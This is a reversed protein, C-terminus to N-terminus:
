EAAIELAARTQTLLARLAAPKLPKNLLVLDYEAAKDRVEPSRDATILVAPIASRFRSRLRRVVAIGNDNDLHFDAIIMDPKRPAAKILRRASDYDSAILVKCGWGELLIRLGDLITPENDIALVSLGALPPAQLVMPEAPTVAYIGVSVVPIDVSFVSGRRGSAGVSLPHGLARAIRDVISLGLGLGRAAKAGEDLRQFEKFIATRKGEPVGIGTDRVEIRVQDARRRCGVLVRGEPTYKIANSILNQLIRRLLRRDSRVSLRSPVFTLTLNKQRALPAFEVALQGFMEDIRFTSLEPKLKGSDLRSIELLATLIEEVSDLSAGVNRALSGLESGESRENLSTAYLRAANLPQLIDHSAAALFRTKSLNAQEAEAKARGLEENVRTLENTRQLVRRELTENAQNLAAEAKVAVTIDTYTTVIGGDPLHNSRVELWRSPAHLRLREPETRTVFAQVRRAISDSSMDAGYTGRKANYGVIDDLGVGFRVMDSPLDFLDKFAQNWCVLRLDSDFVTVGQETHDLAHQLLTRSYQIAASADDLLKLAAETSVNRRRLMLSLVLRSSAAGIVSALLHEAFRITHADAELEPMPEIGQRTAFENFERTTREEGLYRAVTTKLETMTVASRWLRFSTGTLGPDTGIFVNAQLREVPTAARTLSLGIYSLINLSLSIIVGSVLASLDGIVLSAPRLWDIGFLGSRMWNALAGEQGALSPLFLLVFWCVMGVVPGAVAGRANAGHWILGGFFAPALQSVAAFSLLGISALAADSSARYYFYGLLLIVAIAIRRIVLVLGGMDQLWGGDFRTTPQRSQAVMMGDSTASLRAERLRTNRKLLFPIVLDNSVMVGLAVTEVIVMATAASLAGVVAVVTMSASQQLIPLALVTLDYDTKAPLLLLGAVAIPVVFLNIAVLYLPFLWAARRIDGLERNEVVLVHFQRPLLVAAFAAIVTTTIWTSPDVNFVLKYRITPDEFARGFLEGLGGFVGWVVFIGVALFAVLKILSESAVALVLGTQHKTADTNRTGFVMAFFAMILTVWLASDGFPLASPASRDFRLGPVSITELTLAVAKLQLAIYPVIGLLCIITVVGAVAESKGYRSAIMDALSTTNQSKGIKVIRMLIRWGFVFVLIPGIYIPLFDYGSRSALGVSGLFTWSTCYVALTLAYFIPRLRGSLLKQGSQDGFHAIIFLACLYFLVWVVISWGAIM